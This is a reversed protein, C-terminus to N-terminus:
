PSVRGFTRAILPFTPAIPRASRSLPRVDIIVSQSLGSEMSRAGLLGILQTLPGRVHAILRDRVDRQIVDRHRLCHRAHSGSSRKPGPGDRALGLDSFAVAMATLQPDLRPGAPM